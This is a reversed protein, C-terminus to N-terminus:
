RQRAAKKKAGRVSDYIRLLEEARDVTIKRQAAIEGIEMGEAIGKVLASLRETDRYTLGTQEKLRKRFFNRAALNVNGIIRTELNAKSADFSAVWSIFNPQLFGRLEDRAEEGLRYKRAVYKIAKEFVPMAKVLIKMREPDFSAIRREMQRSRGSITPIDFGAKRMESKADGVRGDSIKIGQKRLINGHEHNTLNPNEYVVSMAQAQPSGLRIAYREARGEMLQRLGNIGPLKGAKILIRKIQKIAGETAAVAPNRNKLHAVINETDLYPNRLIAEIIAREEPGDIPAAPPRRPRSIKRKAGPLIGMPKRPIKPAM